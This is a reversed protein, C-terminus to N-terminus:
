IVDRVGGFFGNYNCFQDSGQFVGNFGNVTADIQSINFTGQNGPTSGFTCSFSGNVNGLRGNQGYAGSFTCVSATGSSNFFNVRATVQGGSHSVTLTDFILVPGNTAGNGCNTGSATLGGLYNGSLNEGAWTQRQVQKTVQTGNVTYVLTGTSATNFTLTMSGVPSNVVANPNFAQFFAPGSTQFLTGSFTNGSTAQLNSAVFWFPQNDSAYVFLTAFIVNNQQILNVGWGSEAPNYWLDTFDTSFTTASAPMAFGLTVLLGAACRKLLSTM